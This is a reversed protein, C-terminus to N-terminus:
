QVQAGGKGGEVLREYVPYLGREEHEIHHEVLHILNLSFKEWGRDGQPYALAEGLQPLYRRIGEHEYFMERTPRNSLLFKDLVPYIETEEWRLRDSIAQQLQEAQPQWSLGALALARLQRFSKLWGANEQRLAALETGEREQTFYLRMFM